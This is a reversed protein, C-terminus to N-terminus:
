YFVINLKNKDCNKCVYKHIHFNCEINWEAFTQKEQLIKAKDCLTTYKQPLDLIENTKTEIIWESVSMSVIRFTEVNTNNYLNGVGHVLSHLRYHSLAPGSSGARPSARSAAPRPPATGNRPARAVAATGRRPRAESLEHAFTTVQTM